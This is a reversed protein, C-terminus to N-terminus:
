LEFGKVIGSRLAYKYIGTTNKVDLKYLINKRHSNITHVSVHLSEAIEATSMEQAILRVVEKERESLEIIELQEKEGKEQYSDLMVDLVEKSFYREGSYLTNIAELFAARGANKLIYGDAGAKILNKIFESRKYMSLILIKIEPYRSKLQKTVEIGDVLPMNIDLVLIDIEDHQDILELVQKGTSATALIEIDDQNELLTELGDLIIQHDDAIIIKKMPRQTSHLISIPEM